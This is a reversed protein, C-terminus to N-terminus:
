QTFPCGSTHNKRRSLPTMKGLRGDVLRLEVWSCGLDSFCNRSNVISQFHIICAKGKPAM